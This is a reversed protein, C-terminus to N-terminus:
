NRFEVVVDGFDKLWVGKDVFSAMTDGIAFFFPRRSTELPAFPTM